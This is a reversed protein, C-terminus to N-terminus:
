VNHCLFVVRVGARALRRAITGLAPAFFPHWWMLVALDPRYDALRAASKGWTWPGISDILHECPAALGDRSTDLQTKGPFLLSPYQRSYSVQLVDHRTALERHLMTTYQAIGGRLPYGPGVLAVK